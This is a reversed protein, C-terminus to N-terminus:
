DNNQEKEAADCAQEIATLIAATIRDAVAEVRAADSATWAAYAAAAAEAAYAAAAAEAARAAARAAWAAARVARAAARADRAAARAAAAEAAAWELGLVHAGQEALRLLALVGEVASAASGALPLCDEVAIRRATYDLRRWTEDSLVHWRGAVAAYRKVMPLWADESGYDDMWPTLHALWQPMIDAPCAGPNGDDTVEPSVAALLCATERGQDDIGTWDNRILRGEAIFQNLKTTDVM